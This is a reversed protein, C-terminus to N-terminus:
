PAARDRRTGRVIGYMIAPVGFALAVHGWDVGGSRRYSATERGLAVLGGLIALSIALTGLRHTWRSNM